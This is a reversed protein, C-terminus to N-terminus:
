RARLKASAGRGTDAVWSYVLSDLGHAEIRGIRLLQKQEPAIGRAEVAQVQRAVGRGVNELQASRVHGVGAMRKEVVIGPLADGASGAVWFASFVAVDPREAAKALAARLRQARGQGLCRRKM